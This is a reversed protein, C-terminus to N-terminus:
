TMALSSCNSADTSLTPFNHRERVLRCFTSNAGFPDARTFKSSNFSIYTETATRRKIRTIFFTITRRRPVRISCSSRHCSGITAPPKSKCRHGFHGRTYKDV